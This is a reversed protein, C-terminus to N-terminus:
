RQILFKVMGLPRGRDTLRALYLGSPRHALDVNLKWPIEANFEMRWIERGLADAISLVCPGDCTPPPHDIRVDFKGGNPNPSLSLLTESGIVLDHIGVSGCGPEMCGDGDLKLLWLHRDSWPPQIDANWTEGALVMGGDATPEIDWPIEPYLGSLNAFHAYTRRWLSDGDLNFRQVVARNWLLQQIAGCAILTSDTDLFGDHFQALSSSSKAELGDFDWLLTGNVDYRAMYMVATDYTDLGSLFHEWQGLCLVGGDPLGLSGHWQGHTRPMTRSWVTAGLSDVRVVRGTASLGGSSQEGSLYAGKLPAPEISCARVSSINAGSIATGATDTRLFFTLSNRVGTILVGDDICALDLAAFVADTGIPRSWLTDGEANLRLLFSSDPQAGGFRNWVTMFGAGWPVRELADGYGHSATRQSILPEEMVLAGVGDFWTRYAMQTVTDTGSQYSLVLYGDSTEEVAQGIAFGGQANYHVVNFTQGHLGIPLIFLGIAKVSTSQNM